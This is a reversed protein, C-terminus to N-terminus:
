AASGFRIECIELTGSRNGLVYPFSGVMTSQVYKQYLTQLHMCSGCIKGFISSRTNEPFSAFDHSGIKDVDTALFNVSNFREHMSLISNQEKIPASSPSCGRLVSSTCSFFHNQVQEALALSIYICVHICNFFTKFDGKLVKKVFFVQPQAKGFLKLSRLYLQGSTVIIIQISNRKNYGLLRDSDFSFDTDYEEM